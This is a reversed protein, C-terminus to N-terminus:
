SVNCTIKIDHETVEFMSKKLTELKHQEFTFKLHFQLLFYDNRLKLTRAMHQLDM